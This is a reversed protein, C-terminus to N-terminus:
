GADTDANELCRAQMCGSRKGIRRHVFVLMRNEIAVQLVHFRGHTADFSCELEGVARSKTDLRAFFHPLVNSLLGGRLLLMSTTRALRNSSRRFHMLVRRQFILLSGM